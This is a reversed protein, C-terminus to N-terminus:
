LWGARTRSRLMGSEAVPCRSHGFTRVELLKAKGKLEEDRDRLGTILLTKEKILERIQTKDLSSQLKLKQLEESVSNLRAEMVGRSRQAEGLDKRVSALTDGQVPSQAGPEVKSDKKAKTDQPKPSPSPSDM